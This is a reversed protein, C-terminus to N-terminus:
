ELITLRKSNNPFADESHPIYIEHPLLIKTNKSQSRYRKYSEQAEKPASDKIRPILNKDFFWWDRNSKWYLDLKRM